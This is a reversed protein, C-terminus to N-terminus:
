QQVTYGPPSFKSVIISFAELAGEATSEKSSNPRGVAYAKRIEATLSILKEAQKRSNDIVTKVNIDM